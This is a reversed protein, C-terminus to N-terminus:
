HFQVKVFGFNNVLSFFRQVYLNNHCNGKLLNNHYSALILKESLPLLDNQFLSLIPQKKNIM